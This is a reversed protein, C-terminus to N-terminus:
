NAAAIARSLAGLAIAVGFGISAGRKTAPGKALFYVLALGICGGFFGAVFGLGLSGQIPMAYAPPPANPAGHLRDEAWWM